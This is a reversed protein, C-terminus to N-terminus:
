GTEVVLRTRHISSPPPLGLAKAVEAPKGSGTNDCQLDMYLIVNSASIEEIRIDGIQSRLDYRRTKDQRQHEWSLTELGLLNAIASEVEQRSASTPIEVCYHARSIQGQLSPVSLGVPMVQKIEIGPPLQNNVAELVTHPSYGRKFVVDMLESEGTVGLPLPAAIHIRPHPSFGESYVIELGARRFARHWLRMIDLHSIYKLSDGRSFRIRLRQM